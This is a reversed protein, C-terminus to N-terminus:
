RESRDAFADAAVFSVQALRWPRKAGSPWIGELDLAPIGDAGIVEARIYRGAERMRIDAEPYKAELAKKLAAADKAIKPKGLARPTGDVLEASRVDTYGTARARAATRDGVTFVPVSAHLDDFRHNSLGHLSTFALAEVDSPLRIPGLSGVKLAPIALARHGAGRIKIATLFNFPATRTVWIHMPDNM